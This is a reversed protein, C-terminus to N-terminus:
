LNSVNGSTVPGTAARLAGSFADGFSKVVAPTQANKSVLVALIAVGVIATLVTVVQGLTNNM